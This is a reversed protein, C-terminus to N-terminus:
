HTAHFPPKTLCYLSAAKDTLMINQLFRFGSRELLRCAKHNHIDPEAYVREAEPFSFLHRLFAQLVLRSLGPVQVADPGMLLHLGCDHYHCPIFQGLDAAQARYVDILCVLGEDLIGVFSHADPDTLVRRYTSLVQEKSCAVQWFKAYPLNVWHHLLALDTKLQLPRFILRQGQGIAEEVLHRHRDTPKCFLM